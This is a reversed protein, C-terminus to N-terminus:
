AAGRALRDALKLLTPIRYPGHMATVLAAAEAPAMGSATVLLPRRGAGRTAPEALDNGRFATKAVGVVPFRRGTAERLREGLGPREKGLWVYGDVVVAQPTANSLAAALVRLLYPLERAYFQGAEYPPPRGSFHEAWAHTPSSDRWNAAAVAGVTAADAQYQVDVCYIM